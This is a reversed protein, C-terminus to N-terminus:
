SSEGGHRIERPFKPPPDRRLRFEDTAWAQFSLAQICFEERDLAGFGVRIVPWCNPDTSAARDLLIADDGGDSGLAMTEPLWKQIGYGENYEAVEEACWIRLCDGSGPADHIAWEAGNTERLLALYADPLERAWM